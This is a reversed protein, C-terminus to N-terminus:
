RGAGGGALLIQVAHLLQAPLLDVLLPIITRVPSVADVHAGV